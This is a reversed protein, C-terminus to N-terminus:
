RPESREEPSKALKPIEAASFHGVLLTDLWHRWAEPSSRAALEIREDHFVAGARLTHVPWLREESVLEIEVRDANADLRLRVERTRDAEEWQFRWRGDAERVGRGLIAPTAFDVRAGPPAHVFVGVAYLDATENPGAVADRWLWLQSVRATERVREVSSFAGLAIMSAPAEAEGLLPPPAARFHSARGDIAVPLRDDEPAGLAITRAGVGREVVTATWGTEPGAELRTGPGFSCETAGCGYFLFIRGDASVALRRFVPETEAEWHGVPLAGAAGRADAALGFASRYADRNRFKAEFLLRHGEDLVRNVRRVEFGTGIWAAAFATGAAAVLAGALLAPRRTGHRWLASCAVGDIAFLAAVLLPIDLRIASSAHSPGWIGQM